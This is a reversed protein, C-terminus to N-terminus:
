GFWLQITENDMMTLSGEPAGLVRELAEQYTQTVARLTELDLDMQDEAILYRAFTQSLGEVLCMVVEAIMGPSKSTLSGEILGQQFIRTLLPAVRRVGKLYIKERVIANEDRYWIRVLEVLYEKQATKWRGAAAFYQQLKELANLGPEEVISKLIREGDDLMRDILAELLSQKSDFYHYFAGKSIHVEDLIAQITMQQYGHTYILKGAADLIENMKESYDEERVTRAV